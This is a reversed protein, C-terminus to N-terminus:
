SALAQSGELLIDVEEPTAPREERYHTIWHSTNDTYLAFLPPYRGTFPQEAFGVIAVLGANHTSGYQEGYLEVHGRWEDTWPFAWRELEVDTDNLPKSSTGDPVSPNGYRITNGPQVAVVRATQTYLTKFLRPDTPELDKIFAALESM